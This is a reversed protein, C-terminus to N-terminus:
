RLRNVYWGRELIQENLWKDIALPAQPGYQGYQLRGHRNQTFYTRWVFWQGALEGVGECLVALYVSTDYAPPAKIVERVVAWPEAAENPYGKRKRKLINGIELANM